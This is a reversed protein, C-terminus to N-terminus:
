RDPPLFDRDTTPVGVKVDILRKVVGLHQDDLYSADIRTPLLIGDFTRYDSFAYQEPDLGMAIPHYYTRRLLLGDAKSFTLEQTVGDAGAAAITYAEVGDITDMRTVRSSAFDAPRVRLALLPILRRQLQAFEGDDIWHLGDPGFTWARRGDSGARVSRGDPLLSTTVARSVVDDFRSLNESTACAARPVVYAKPTGADVVRARCGELTVRASSLTGVHAVAEYRAFVDAAAPMPAPLAEDPMRRTTNLFTSGIQPVSAPTAAGHHCTQCTVITRGGFNAANIARTMLIMDRARRKAPKDDLQYKGEEAVHCYECRVGLSARMYHMIPLLETGPVGTLVKINKWEAEMPKPPQSASLSLVVLPLGAVAVRISM